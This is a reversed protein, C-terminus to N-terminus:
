RIIAIKGKQKQGAANTILYIYVASGVKEGGDNTLDWTTIGNTGDAEIKRVLSGNIKFIKITVTDTLNDFTVQTNGAAIRVPNPYAIVDDLDTRLDAYATLPGLNSTLLLLVFLISIKKM